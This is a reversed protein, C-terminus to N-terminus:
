VLGPERAREAAVVSSRQEHEGRVPPHLVAELVVDLTQRGSRFGALDEGGAGRGGMGAVGSRGLWGGGKAPKGGRAHRVMSTQKGLGYITALHEFHAQRAPTPGPEAPPPPSAGSRM